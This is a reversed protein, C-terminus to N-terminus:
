GDCMAGTDLWLVRGKGPRVAHMYPLGWGIIFHIMPCDPGGVEEYLFNTCTGM